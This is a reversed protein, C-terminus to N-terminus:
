RGRIIITNFTNVLTNHKLNSELDKIQKQLAEMESGICEAEAYQTELAISSFVREGTPDKYLHVM